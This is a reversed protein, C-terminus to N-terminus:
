EQLKSLLGPFGAASRSDTVDYLALAGDVTPMMQEGISSPWTIRGSSSVRVDNMSIELLRVVYIVGELSMKKTSSRSEPPNKLDLACQVFTSKGM